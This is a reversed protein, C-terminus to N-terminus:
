CSYWLELFEDIIVCYGVIIFLVAVPNAQASLSHLVPPLPHISAIDSHRLHLKNTWCM